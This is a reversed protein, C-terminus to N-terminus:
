TMWILLVIMSPAPVGLSGGPSDPQLSGGIEEAMGSGGLDTGARGPVAGGGAGGARPRTAGAGLAAGGGLAGPGAGRAGLESPAPVAFTAPEGPAGAARGIAGEARAVVLSARGAPVGTVFRATGFGLAARPSGVPLAFAAGLRVLSGVGRGGAAAARGGGAVRGAALVDGPV